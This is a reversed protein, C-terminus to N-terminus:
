KLFEKGAEIWFKWRTKKEEDWGLKQPINQLRSIWGMAAYTEPSSIREGLAYTILENVTMTEGHENGPNVAERLLALPTKHAQEALEHAAYLHEWSLGDNVLDALVEPNFGNIAALKRRLTQPSCGAAHAFEKEATVKAGRPVEEHVERWVLINEMDAHMSARSRVRIPELFEHDFYCDFQEVQAIERASYDSQPQSM